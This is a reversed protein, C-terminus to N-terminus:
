CTHSFDHRFAGDANAVLKKMIVNRVPRRFKRLRPLSKFGAVIVKQIDGGLNEKNLDIIVPAVPELSPEPRSALLIHINLKEKEIQHLSEILKAREIELMEDIGDLVLYAHQGDLKEPFREVFLRTWPGEQNEDSLASALQECYRPDQEAIQFSLCYLAEEWSRLANQEERFFFSACHKRESLTAELNAAASHSLFSKGMGPAGRLWIVSNGKGEVWSKFSENQQLWTGTGNKGIINKIERKQAKAEKNVISWASNATFYSKVKTLADRKKDAPDTKSKKQGPKEKEKEKERDHGRSQETLLRQIFEKTEKQSALMADQKVSSEHGQKMIIETNSNIAHTREDIVTVKTVVVELDDSMSQLLEAIVEVTRLTALGVADSLENIAGEM